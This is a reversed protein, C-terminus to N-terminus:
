GCAMYRYIMCQMCVGALGAAFVEGAVVKGSSVLSWAEGVRFVVVLNGLRGGRTGKLIWGIAWGGSALRCATAAAGGSASRGGSEM